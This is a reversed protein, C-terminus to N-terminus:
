EKGSFCLLPVTMEAHSLGGHQGVLDIEHPFRRSMLLWDDQAIALVDGIRPRVNPAVEGFWGDAIATEGLVVRARRGLRDHWAHAVAQPTRTYVHRFRSEGALLDVGDMLVPDDECWLRHDPAADVMGHDGTVLLHVSDDLRERLAILFREIWALMDRWRQSHCGAQHGARDLGREYVYVLAADGRAAAHCVQAVRADRDDEDNVPIYRAGRLAAVTLGSHMQEAPGLASVAVGKEALRQWWPPIPQFAAPDRPGGRWSLPALFRTPAIRFTFGVMGHRGPPTGTSLTTISTATTSPVACTLPIATDLTASLVPAVFAHAALLDWGLGDVLCVVYRHGDPLGLPDRVDPELHAAIAPLVEALTSRGYQPLTIAEDQFV